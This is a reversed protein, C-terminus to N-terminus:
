QKNKRKREPIIMLMTGLFAEEILTEIDLVQEATIVEEISPKTKPHKPTFVTCCDQYPLISTEYTGIKRAYAIIEEKDMGIVPRFVPINVANDTVALSMITQSAVQGISEGTILAFSHNNLAIKESIKMMFRRMILTFLEDPCNKRIEEQIKTFPVIFLNIRNTYFSLQKALDIVKLKARESTYPYSFFHVADLEMGRKAVMYGAVPSDIGGSLMLTARGNSGIPMGGAGRIEGARIFAFLDRIEITVVIEPNHIDVSLNPFNELIFAGIENAIQPSTLPFKKDSRKACVKFTKANKLVEKLYTPLLAKISEISKECQCARSIAVIGFVKSLRNVIEDYNELEFLPEVYITSQIASVKFSGFNKLAKKINKMLIAEFSSRNLGKLVIEGCKVLITEKM